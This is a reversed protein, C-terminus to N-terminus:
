SGVRTSRPVEKQNRTQGSQAWKTQSEGHINRLQEAMPCHAEIELVSKPAKTVKSSAHPM